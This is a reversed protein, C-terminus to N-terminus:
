GTYASISNSLDEPNSSQDSVAHVVQQHVRELLTQEADLARHTQYDTGRSRNWNDVYSTRELKARKLAEEPTGGRRLVRLYSAIVEGKLIEEFADGGVAIHATPPTLARAKEFHNESELGLQRMLQFLVERRDISLEEYFLTM